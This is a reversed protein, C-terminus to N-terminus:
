RELAFTTWISDLKMDSEYVKRGESVPAVRKVQESEVLYIMGDMGFFVESDYQGCYGVDIADTRQGPYKIHVIEPKASVEIIASIPKKFPAKLSLSANFIYERKLHYHTPSPRPKNPDSRMESSFCSLLLDKSLEQLLDHRDSGKSSSEYDHPNTEDIEPTTCVPTPMTERDSLITTWRNRMQCILDVLKQRKLLSCPMGAVYHQMTQFFFDTTSTTKSTSENEVLAVNSLSSM